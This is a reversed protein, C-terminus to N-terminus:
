LTGSTKKLDLAIHKMPYAKLCFLFFAELEIELAFCVNLDNQSKIPWKLTM